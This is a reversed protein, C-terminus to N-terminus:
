MTEHAILLAVVVRPKMDGVSNSPLFCMIPTSRRPGVYRTLLVVALAGSQM